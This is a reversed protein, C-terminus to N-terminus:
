STIMALLEKKLVDEQHIKEALEEAKIKYEPNHFVDALLPELNSPSIKDVPIGKPGAGLDSAINNWLFQDVIHPIILSSCGYKLAMHTTGSGGHHVVGYVKPFAWDYPISEVFHLMERDYKGPEVLGGAGTSIIAPIRNKRLIDLIITTKGEPDPNAMSGFTILLVKEHRALFDELQEGPHWNSTKDREHFGLVQANEPWYDPRPFISPSISYIMRNTLIAEKIQRGTIQPSKRFAKTTSLINQVLGFNALRYTFQNFTTGLNLNIGVNPYKKVPHILCPVPSIMMAKGPHNIGWIIPYTAKGSYIVRDPKEKEILEHQLAIMRKNVKESNRYLRIYAGIKQFVNGKGGMAMKGDESEILEIFESGLSFLPMESDEALKRFQEPFATKVEHGNEMLLNAVALFPEVDGRTGISILLFKM